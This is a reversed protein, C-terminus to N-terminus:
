NWCQVKRSDNWGHKRARKEWLASLKREEILEREAKERGEECTEMGVNCKEAEKQYHSLTKTADLILVKTHAISENAVDKQLNLEESLLDVLDKKLEKDMEPNNKDCDSFSSNLVDLSISHFNDLSCDCVRCPPCSSTDVTSNEKFLYPGVVCWFLSCFSCILVVKLLVHAHEAALYAM